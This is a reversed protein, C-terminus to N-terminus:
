SIEQGTGFMSQTNIYRFDWEGHHEPYQEDKRIAWKVAADMNAFPGFWYFTESRYYYTSAIVKENM